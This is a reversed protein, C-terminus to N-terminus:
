DMRRFQSTSLISDDRYISPVSSSTLQRLHLWLNHSSACRAPSAVDVKRKPVLLVLPSGIDIRDMQTSVISRENSEDSALDITWSYKQHEVM